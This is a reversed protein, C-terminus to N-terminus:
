NGNPHCNFCAASTYSYGNEGKHDNDVKTKNNHEHCNICSFVAYNSSNTHCETCSNWENRHNGSYIPFYMGDHDFTAPTWGAETHCQKCDNPFHASAHNPDTTANYDNLHCGVCTNPTNTYGAAHCMVCNNAIPQHAGVLPYIANHDYDSPIWATEDHCVKCDTPFQATKHNPNTTKNYDDLHCGVCTNPTNAYGASHCRNCDNAIPQHAGILPYVTNHDFIAPVWATEDHCIKCDNPFQATKHNPNTTKNYDDAHCGVCTNPTNVYGAAHCELCNNAIAQHAGHFPYVISHDFTSPVWAELNHCETCTKPFNSTTHNPDTTASYDKLHCSVCEPSADSYNETLHCRKCDQIDHGLTLPFFDHNALNSNWGTSFPDHCEACSTSYNAKQHDPQRTALYDDRHCNVCDNGIRNFRLNTESVHCEACTQSSHAGALPFGVQEHLEPINDVLWNQTTHCRACANGLTMNHIDTHCSVCQTSADAFLLSQHCQKCDAQGHVGTLPFATSDHSFNLKERVPLWATASHCAACDMKLSEGHPSQAWVQSFLLLLLVISSLRQM